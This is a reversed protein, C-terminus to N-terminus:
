QTVTDYKLYSVKREFHRDGGLHVFPYRGMLHPSFLGVISYCRMRSSTSTIGNVEPMVGSQDTRNEFGQGYAMASSLAGM